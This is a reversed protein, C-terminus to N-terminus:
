ISQFFFFTHSTLPLLLCSLDAWPQGSICSTYPLQAVPLFLSLSFSVMETAPSPFLCRKLSCPTLKGTATVLWCGEAQSLPVNRGAGHETTTCLQLLGPLALSVTQSPLSPCQFCASARETCGSGRSRETVCNWWRSGSSSASPLSPSSCFGWHFCPSPLSSPLFPLSFPPQPMLHPPADSMAVRRMLGCVSTCVYWVSDTLNPMARQQKKKRKQKQRLSTRWGKKEESRSSLLSVSLLSLFPPPSATVREEGSM